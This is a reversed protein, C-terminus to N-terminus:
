GGESERGCMGTKKEKWKVTVTREVPPDWLTRANTTLAAVTTRGNTPQSAPQETTTQSAIKIPFRGIHDNFCAAAPGM